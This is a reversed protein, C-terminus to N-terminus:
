RRVCAKLQRRQHQISKFDATWATAVYVSTRQAHLDHKLSRVICTAKSTATTSTFSCYAPGAAHVPTWPCRALHLCPSAAVEAALRSLEAPQRALRKWEFLMLDPWLYPQPVVPTEGVLDACHIMDHVTNCMCKRCLVATHVVHTTSSM